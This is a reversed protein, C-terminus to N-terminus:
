KALGARVRDAAQKYLLPNGRYFLTKLRWTELKWGSATRVSGFMYIGSATISRDGSDTNLFHEATVYCRSSARDGKIEHIINTVSHMTSDFGPIVSKVNAVWQDPDTAEGVGKGVVREVHESFDFRVKDAFCKRYGDWDHTDVAIAQASILEDLARKDMLEEISTAV